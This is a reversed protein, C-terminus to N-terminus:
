ALPDGARSRRRQTVRSPPREAAESPSRLDVTATVLPVAIATGNTATGWSWLLWEIDLTM